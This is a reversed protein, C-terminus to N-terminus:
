QAPGVDWVAFETASTSADDAFKWSRGVLSRTRIQFTNEGNLCTTSFAFGTTNWDKTFAVDIWRTWKGNLSLGFQMTGPQTDASKLTTVGEIRVLRDSPLVFRGTYRLTDATGAAGGGPDVWRALRGLSAGVPIAYPQDLTETASKTSAAGAPVSFRAIAVGQPATTSGVAVRTVGEGDVYITDQRTGTAPAPSTAIDGGDVPVLMGLRSQYSAWMFVAGPAVSYAMKSTGTVKCGGNPLIGSNMYQAGIVRQLDAEQTGVMVPMEAPTPATGTQKPAKGFPYGM